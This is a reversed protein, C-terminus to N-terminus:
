AAVPGCDKHLTLRNRGESRLYAQSDTMARMFHIGLGGVERDELAADIDPPPLATPDFPTGDDEVEITVSLRGESPVAGVRLVFVGPDAGDPWANRAVNTLVEEAVILLQTLPGPACGAEALFEEMRVVLAVLGEADRTGELDLRRGAGAPPDAPLLAGRPWNM